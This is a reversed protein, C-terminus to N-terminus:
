IEEVKYIHRIHVLTIMHQLLVPFFRRRSNLLDLVRAHDSPMDVILEGRLEEGTSLDLQVNTKVDFSASVETEYEEYLGPVDVRVLNKKHILLSKDRSVRLPFFEQHSNFFDLVHSARIGASSISDLFIEGDITEKRDTHCLIRVATKPIRLEDM